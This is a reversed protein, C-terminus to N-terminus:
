EKTHSILCMNSFSIALLAISKIFSWKPSINLLSGFCGCSAIGIGDPPNLYNQGTLYTFLLLLLFSAIAPLKQRMCIVSMFGVLIEVVCMCVSILWRHEIIFPINMYYDAYQAIEDAFSHLSFLKAIGSIIFIVGTFYSFALNLFKAHVIYSMGKFEATLM